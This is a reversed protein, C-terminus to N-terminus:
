SKQSPNKKGKPGHIAVGRPPQLYLEGWRGSYEACHRDQTLGLLRKSLSYFLVQGGQPPRAPNGDEWILVSTPASDRTSGFGGKGAESFRGGRQEGTEM